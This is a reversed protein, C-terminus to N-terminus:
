DQGLLRGDKLQWCWDVGGSQYVLPDHSAILVTRGQDKLEQIIALFSASLVSDLHATPEDAILVAPDNILARAIATRQQEGGSLHEVRRRQKGSLELQELLAAARSQLKKPSLGDPYAPIMVNELVSLGKILNYNQFVFGFTRRREVAMFREPLSTIERGKLHIRGTSPRALCGIISLLTTKGSGSPGRFVSLQNAAINLDIAKLAEFANRRGEQYIKSVGSLTIMNDNM